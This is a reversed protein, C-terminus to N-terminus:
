PASWYDAQTFELAIAYAAFPSAWYNAQTFDLALAYNPYTPLPPPPPLPAGIHQMNRGFVPETEPAAGAVPVGEPKFKPPKHDPPKADWCTDRCVRLGTFERRLSTLRRKFGCRACEGYPVSM